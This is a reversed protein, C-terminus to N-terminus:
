KNGFKSQISQLNQRQAKIFESKWVAFQDPTMSARKQKLVPLVSARYQPSDIMAHYTQDGFGSLVSGVIGDLQAASDDPKQEAPAAASKASDPELLSGSPATAGGSANGNPHLLQYLPNMEGRLRAVELANENRSKAIEQQMDLRQQALAQQTEMKQASLRLARSKRMNEKDQETAVRMTFKGGSLDGIMGAEILSDRAEDSIGIWRDETEDHNLDKLAKATQAKHLELDALAAQKQIDLMDATHLQGAWQLEEMAQKRRLEDLALSSAGKAMEMTHAQAAQDIQQSRAYAQQFGTVVDPLHSWAQGQQELARAQRNGTQESLQQSQLAIENDKM